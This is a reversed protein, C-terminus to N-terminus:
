RLDVYDIATLGFWGLDFLCGCGVVDLWVVMCWRNLSSPRWVQNDLPDGVDLRVAPLCRLALTFHRRVHCLGASCTKGLMKCAGAPSCTQVLEKHLM